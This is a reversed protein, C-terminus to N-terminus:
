LLMEHGRAARVADARGDHGTGHMTAPGFPFSAAYASTGTKMGAALPQVPLFSSSFRLPRSVSSRPM